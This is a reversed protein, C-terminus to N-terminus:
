EIIDKEQLMPRGEDDSMRASFHSFVGKSRKKNRSIGEDIIDKVDQLCVTEDSGQLMGIRDYLALIGMDDMSYGCELVYVKGFNVLEDLNM